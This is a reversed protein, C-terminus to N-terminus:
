EGRFLAPRKEMFAAVGERHDASRVCSRQAEVEIAFMAELEAEAAAWAMRRIAGLALTPGNALETALAAVRAELDTDPVVKTVLGWDCAQRAPIRRGTMMLEVARVRGITRVLMSAGGGDPVLAINRFTYAFFATESAIILDGALALPAGFGAAAGRVATIVPIPLEVIRRILPNFHTLLAAGGDIEDVDRSEPAITGGACFSRGAGTIVLVRASPIIRDLGALAEEIMGLSLANAQEVNDWTLRAVGEACECHVLPRSM